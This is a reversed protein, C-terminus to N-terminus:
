ATWWSHFFRPACGARAGAIVVMGASLQKMTIQRDAHQVLHHILPETAETINM